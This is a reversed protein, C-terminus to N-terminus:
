SEYVTSFLHSVDRTFPSEVSEFFHLDQGAVADWFRKNILFM